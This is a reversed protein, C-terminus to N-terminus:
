GGEQNPETADSAAVGPCRTGDGRSEGYPEDGRPVSRLLDALADMREEVTAIDSSFDRDALEGASDACLHLAERLPQSLSAAPRECLARAAAVAECAIVVRLDPLSALLKRAALNAFSSDDEVGRSLSAVQTSVPTAASVLDALAAAAVYELLMIGSAGPTPGALFPRLGTYAPETLLALRRVGLKATQAAASAVTSLSTALYAAHFGGHHVVDVTGGAARVIIPNESAANVLRRIVDDLSAISDVFLGHVQPISRISIPDQLRAAASGEEVLSRMWGAVQAAGEFPTVRAVAESFAAAEGQVATLTLGGVVLSARSLRALEACALAADGLAAANSSLLPLADHTTLQFPLDLPETTPSEGLLALATTALGALDGTGIGIHERVLPLADAVLMAQLADALAPSSGSGGAALQNLRVVLMARVREPSRFPGASTAHSRVLSRAHEDGDAVEVDRNAGVGTSRGYVQRHASLSLAADYSAQIRGLAAPTLRVEARRRAADAIQNASLSTGDLEIM